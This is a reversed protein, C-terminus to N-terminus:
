RFAWAVYLAPGDFRFDFEGRTHEKTSTLTYKYYNYGLGAYAQPLFAWEVAVAGNYLGGDYDGIKLKLLQAFGSLRWSDAFRWGGRVGVTPLPFDVSASQSLGLGGPGSLSTKITTYHAGFLFALENGRGDDIPSYRYAVRWVDSDFTSNVETNVPFSIEGWNIEGSITRSGSRNLRVYSGEIGHRPNIRWLFELDPLTKRDALNLDSELNIDTGIGGGRDSDLRVNTSAQASFAGLQITFPAVWASDAAFAPAAALTAAALSLKLARNM